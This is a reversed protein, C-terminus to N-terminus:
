EDFYNKIAENSIIHNHGQKYANMWPTQHYTINVLATTSYKAFKDVLKEIIEKDGNCIIDDHYQMVKSKWFNNENYEIYHTVRPINTNGFQKYEHYAVPVVPGFTWAEIKEKFCPKKSDTCSLFYAQIFYLIKQLKLNSLSYDKEDCYNIIFRCIDLVNYM